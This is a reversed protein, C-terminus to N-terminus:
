MQIEFFGIPTKVRYIKNREGRIGEMGLFSGRLRQTTHWCTPTAALRNAIKTPVPLRNKCSYGQLMMFNRM